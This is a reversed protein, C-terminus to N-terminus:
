ERCGGTGREFHARVLNVLMGIFAPSDNPCPCRFFELGLAEAKRALEIDLDYMTEMHDMAFGVPHIVVQRHGESALEEMVEEVLPGLWEGPALGKSQYALRWCKLATRESLLAITEHLQNVYPDGQRIHEVPLSHATFLVPVRGAHRGEFRELGKSLGAALAEIFLPHTHWSPALHLRIQPFPKVAEKAAEIFSGTSVRSYHPSLSIALAETEGATEPGVDAVIQQVAEHIFPHWHRMGVYVRYICPASAPTSAENLCRSLETAVKGVIRPLPSAGGVAQYKEKVRALVDPSPRRGTLNSLFPEVAELSDPGGFGLLLIPRM